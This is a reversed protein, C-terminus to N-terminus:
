KGFVAAKIPWGRRIRSQITTRPAGVIECWEVLTKAGKGGSFCRFKENRSTNRNQESRTAWRVNGPEYKGAPNPYRDLSHGPPPEGVAQYFAEFSQKWEDCVLVGRGGYYAYKNFATNYCRNLMSKWAKYARTYSLGNRKIYVRM